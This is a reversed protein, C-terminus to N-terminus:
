PRAQPHAPAVHAAASSHAAASVHAAAYVSGGLAGLALLGALWPRLLAIDIHRPPPGFERIAQRWGDQQNLGSTHHDLMRQHLNGHVEARLRAPWSRLYAQVEPPTM